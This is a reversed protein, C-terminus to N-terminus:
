EVEKKICIRTLHISTCFGEMIFAVLLVYSILMGFTGMSLIIQRFDCIVSCYFMRFNVLFM